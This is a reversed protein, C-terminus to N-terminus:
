KVTVRTPHLKKNAKLVGLVRAAQHKGYVRVNGKHDKVFTRKKTAQSTYKIKYPM